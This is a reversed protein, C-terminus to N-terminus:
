WHCPVPGHPPLQQGSLRTRRREASTSRRARRRRRGPDADLAELLRRDHTVVLLTGDYGALAQELQEIAELDLHNTPEDLVLCNVGQAAFGALVARTREGPSLTGARGCWTSPASVSSPSCRGRRPSTCDPPASSRTSSRSSRRLVRGRAQDMEGVVVSAGSAVARGRRPAVSRAARAAAHDEGLRQAGRDRRARGLRDRPRRARAHVFRARVVADRLRMVVDGSRPANAVQFRLDWGEWPKEVADLRDIAERTARAKAAQKESTAVRFHRIFKDRESTDKKAARPARCRGSANRAHGNSSGVASPATRPTTRRRTGDHPPVRADLYGSGDAATSPARAPTSTSSSCGADDDARPVGPRPERRGRGRAPRRRVGRAAGARRLRPRQDARRPPARRLRSLLIPALSAAPRRGARCRRADARRAPPVACVSTTAPRAPAPTSTPDARRSTPTSPRRTRTPATTRREDASRPRPANWSPRPRPRRRHPPGPVRAADRRSAGPEQACTASGCRRRRPPSRAAIPGNSARRAAAAAHDQRCRQTRGRRPRTRPGVSVDVRM